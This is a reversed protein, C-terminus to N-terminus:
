DNTEAETEIFSRGIRSNVYDDKSGFFLQKKGIHLIHSAYRVAATIDHSVMIITIGGKNLSSILEYLDNKATPDPDPVTEDLLNM